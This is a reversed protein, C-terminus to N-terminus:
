KCDKFDGLRAETLQFLSYEARLIEEVKVSQLSLNGGHSRRARKLGKAWHEDHTSTPKDAVVNDLLKEASVLERRALNVDKVKMHVAIM